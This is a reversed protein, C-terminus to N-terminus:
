LNVYASPQNYQLQRVENSHDLCAKNYLHSKDTGGASGSILIKSPNLFLCLHGSGIIHIEINQNSDDKYQQAQATCQATSDFIFIFFVPM